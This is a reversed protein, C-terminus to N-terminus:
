FIRHVKNNFRQIPHLISELMKITGKHPNLSIERFWKFWCYFAAMQIISCFPNPYKIPNPNPTSPTHTLIISKIFIAELKWYWDSYSGVRNRMTERERKWSHGKMTPRIFRNYAINEILNDSACILQFFSVRKTVNLALNSYSIFVTCHTFTCNLSDDGM